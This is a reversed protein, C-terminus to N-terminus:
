QIEGGNQENNELVDTNGSVFPRLLEGKSNCFGFEELKRLIERNSNIVANDVEDSLMSGNVVVNNWINSVSREVMYNAPHRPMEKQWRWQELIVQKHEESLPLSDFANLNASCWFYESGYTCRMTYSYESQVEASMWWKLFEWAEDSHKTNKFIMCATVNAPQYRVVEGDVETGPAPAIDWLGSLEPAASTLQLYLQSNGIGIPLEAYRFSNYFSPVAQQMSYVKYLDIMENLADMGERSNFSVKSGDESYIVASHQFFFPSTVAFSKYGSSASLPIYFNMGYGLLTAMMYRVDDWTDPVDLGINKLIDKRYYLINFDMTEPIAYVGNDYSFSTVSAANFNTKYFESFDEYESLNKAAKRIAFDFPTASGVGLVVDPNTGSANALILKQESPMISLKISDNNQKNYGKDLLQQLIDTYQISRNVWVSLSANKQTIDANYTNVYNGAFTKLFEFIGEKLYTFVSVKKEPASKGSCFYLTDVSISGSVLKSLVTGLYKSVSNDGVNLLDTKNPLVRPKEILKRLSDAAYVLSDAYTPKEGTIKELDAYVADIRDAIASLEDLVGPLLAEVDWTRNSDTSGASLKQFNLGIANIENMLDFLRNYIAEFEGMTVQMSVTHQGATLYIRYPNGNKDSLTYNEYEGSQTARIAVSELEKFPVSGDIEVTRFADQNTDIYQSYHMALEYLGDKPVSFQWMVKQSPASWTSGDLVCVSKKGSKYPTLIPNKTSRGRIQSESKLSYAEGEIPVIEGVAKANSFQKIYESYGIVDKKTFIRLESIEVNRNVSKLKLSHLGEDLELVLDSVNVSLDDTVIDTVEGGYAEQSPIVQDGNRDVEYDKTADQWLAPVRGRVTKGDLMLELEIDSSDSDKVSYTLSIYYEGAATVNVNASLEDKPALLITRGAANSNVRIDTIEANVDTIAETDQWNKCINGGFESATEFSEALCSGSFLTAILMVSICLSFIRRFAKQMKRGGNDIRGREATDRLRLVQM